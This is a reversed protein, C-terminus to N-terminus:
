KFFEKLVKQEAPLVDQDWVVEGSGGETAVAGGTAAEVEREDGHETERVELLDGMRANEIHGPDLAMPVVPEVSTEFDRLTLDSPGGGRTIGGRGPFDGDMSILGAAMLAQEMAEANQMLEQELQQLQAQDMQQLQTLDVERLQQLLNQNMQLGGQGMQERMQQLYEQMAQQQTHTLQDKGTDALQLLKSTQNMAQMLRESDTRMRSRLRDTAELTSPDYWEEMPKKRLQELERKLAQTADEEVLDQEELEDALAELTKWDPPEMRTTDTKLTEPPLPLYVAACLFLAGLLLPGLFYGPKVKLPIPDEPLDPWAGVGRWASVLRHNLKWGVDLRSFASEWNLRKDAMKSLAGLASVIVFGAGLFWAPDTDVKQLRLLWVLLGCLAMSLVLWPSFYTWFWGLNVRLCM